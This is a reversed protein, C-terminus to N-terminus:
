LKASMRLGGDLRIVSGNLMSNEYIHQVLASFEEPDGMRHPYLSQDNISLKVEEPMDSMMSTDFAGPAICMVRINFEALERALPLTMSAVAGKSASYAVQGVRGENAAISSTNIILGREEDVGAYNDRMSAGVERCVIFNGILNVSIVREFESLKMVHASGVVEESNRIGACNVLLNIQGHYEKAEKVAEAVSVENCIDVQLAIVGDGAAFAKEEAIEIDEDFIAVQGGAKYIREVVALGLGSAGGTVIAKAESWKM